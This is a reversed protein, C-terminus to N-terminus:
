LFGALFRLFQSFYCAKQARRRNKVILSKRNCNQNKEIGYKSEVYFICLICTNKFM